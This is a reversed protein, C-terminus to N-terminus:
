DFHRFYVVTYMQIRRNYDVHCLERQKHKTEGFTVNGHMEGWM